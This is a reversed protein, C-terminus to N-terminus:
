ILCSNDDVDQYLPYLLTRDDKKLALPSSYFPAEGRFTAYANDRSSVILIQVSKPEKSLSQRLSSPDGGM